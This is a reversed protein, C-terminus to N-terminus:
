AHVERIAHLHDIEKEGAHLRAHDEHRDINKIALALNRVDDVIRTATQQASRRHSRPPALPEWSLSRGATARSPSAGAPMM